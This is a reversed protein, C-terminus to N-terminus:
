HRVGLRKEEERVLAAIRAQWALSEPSALDVRNKWFAGPPAVDEPLVLPNVVDAAVEHDAWPENQIEYYVNDFDRLEAVVKRV